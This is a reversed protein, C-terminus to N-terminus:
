VGNCEKDEVQSREELALTHEVALNSRFGTGCDRGTGEICGIDSGYCHMSTDQASDM